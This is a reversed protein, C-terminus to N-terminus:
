INKLFGINKRLVKMTLFHDNTLGKRRGDPPIHEAVFQSIDRLKSESETRLTRKQQSDLGEEAAEEVTEAPATVPPLTISSSTGPKSQNVDISSFIIIRM